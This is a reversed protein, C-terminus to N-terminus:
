LADLLICTRLSKALALLIDKNGVLGDSLWRFLCVMRFNAVTASTNHDETPCAISM